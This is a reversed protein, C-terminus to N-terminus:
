PIERYLSHVFMPPQEQQIGVAKLQGRGERVDSCGGGRGSFSATMFSVVAHLYTHATETILNSVIDKLYYGIQM